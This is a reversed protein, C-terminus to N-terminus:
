GLTYGAQRRQTAEYRISSFCWTKVRHLSMLAAVLAHM